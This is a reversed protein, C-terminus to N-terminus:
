RLSALRCPSTRITPRLLSADTRAYLPAPRGITGSRLRAAMSSASRATSKTCMKSSDSGIANRSCTRGSTCTLPASYPSFQMSPSVTRRAPPTMWRTGRMWPSEVDPSISASVPGPRGFEPAQLGSETRGISHTRHGRRTKALDGEIALEKASIARAHPVLLGANQARALVVRLDLFLHEDDLQVGHTVDEARRGQERREGFHMGM